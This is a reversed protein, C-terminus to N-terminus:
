EQIRAPVATWVGEELAQEGDQGPSPALYNDLNLTAVRVWNESAPPPETRNLPEGPQVQLGEADQQVVKYREFHYTLPGNIGAVFDSSKLAPLLPCAVDSRYLVLIPPPYSEGDAHHVPRPTDATAGVAFGCGPHTPGLVPLWGSTNVLMGERAELYTGALLPDQPMVIPLSDPLVRGPSELEILLGSNDIETLGFYETVQGSVLVQDGMQYQPRQRGLFVAIADSTAPDGDELGPIDQVFLTYFIVGSANQDEMIGTVLGRFTVTQNLFPSVDGVGQIEGVTRLPSEGDLEPASACQGEMILEGPTPITQPRWDVASDSDCFAPSRELSQGSVVEPITPTFFTGRDGYNLADLVTNQDDVLLLEDGSNALAFQGSAWQSDVLMDPVATDTEQIEYDPKVGFLAQFGVATQAVVIAERPGIESGEPFRLMGEGEGITEEDGLGFGSLHVPEDGLNAVEVWEREEDLGPPNYYFETVLLGQYPAPQWALIRGVLSLSVM